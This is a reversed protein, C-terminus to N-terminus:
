QETRQECLYPKVVSLLTAPLRGTIFDAFGMECGLSECFAV